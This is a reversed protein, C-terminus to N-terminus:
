SGHSRGSFIQVVALFYWQASWYNPEYRQKGVIWGMVWNWMHSIERTIILFHLILRIRDAEQYVRDLRNSTSMENRRFVFSVIPGNMVAYFYDKCYDYSFGFPRYGWDFGGMKDPWELYKGPTKGTQAPLYSFRMDMVSMRKRLQEKNM